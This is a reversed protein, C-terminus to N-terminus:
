WISGVASSSRRSNPSSIWGRARRRSPGQAAQRTGDFACLTSRALRRGRASEQGGRALSFDPDAVFLCLAAEAVAVAIPNVDVGHVVRTVLARRRERQERARRTARSLARMVELLFAGGGVAPDCVRFDIVFDHARHSSSRIRRQLPELARQVVVETLARPTFFTGTQKRRKGSKLEFGGQESAGFARAWAAARVSQRGARRSLDGFRCRREEAGARAGRSIRSRSGCVRPAFEWSLAGDRILPERRSARTSRRSCAVRPSTESTRSCAARADWRCCSSACSPSAVISRAGDGCGPAQGLAEAPARAFRRGPVRADGPTRAPSLLVRTRSGFPEDVVRFSVDGSSWRRACAM